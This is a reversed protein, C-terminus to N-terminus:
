NANKSVNRLQFVHGKMETTNSTFKSLADGKATMNNNNKHGVGTSGHGGGNVGGQVPNDGVPPLAAPTNNATAVM